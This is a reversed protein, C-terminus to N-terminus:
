IAKRSRGSHATNETVDPTRRYDVYEPVSTVKDIKTNGLLTVPFECYILHLMTAM